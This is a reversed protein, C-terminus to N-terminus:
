GGLAHMGYGHLKMRLNHGEPKAQVARIIVGTIDDGRRLPGRVDFGSKSFLCPLLMGDSTLRLRNCCRCFPETRPMIFGVTGSGDRYRFNRAPGGGHEQVVEVDNRSRFRNIHPGLSVFLDGYYVPMFEIFRIALHLSRAWEIFDEIEDDNIGKMVVVNVKVKKIGEARAVDIGRLVDHLGERKTVAKFRAAKLTDLGVNIRELGVGKLDRAFRALLLGNTTISYDIGKGTLRELFWLIGRRVLPEGGTIRFRRFGLQRAARVVELIEEYRLVKEHPILRVGEEPMCYLCRLNCRDTVSIRMYDVARGYRDVLPPVAHFGASEKSMKGYGKM